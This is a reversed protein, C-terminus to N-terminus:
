ITRQNNKIKKVWNKESKNNKNRQIKHNPKRRFYSSIM